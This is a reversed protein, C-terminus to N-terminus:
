FFLRSISVFVHSISPIKGVLRELFYKLILHNNKRMKEFSGLNPCSETIIQIFFEEGRCTNENLGPAIDMKGEEV